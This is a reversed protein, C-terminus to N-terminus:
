NGDEFSSSQNMLLASMQDLVREAADPRALKRVNSSLRELEDRDHLLSVVAKALNVGERVSSIMM